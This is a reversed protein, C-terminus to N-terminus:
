FGFKAGLTIIRPMPYSGYDVGLMAGSPIAASSVNPSTASTASYSTASYTSNEPDYNRYKSFLHVNEANVFVRFTKFPTRKLVSQSFAYSLRINKIRLFSADEVWYSSFQEQLGTPKTNPRFHIGDGPESESRWYNAVDAYNNRGAGYSWIGGNYRTVNNAIEGGYSGQLMFSFEFGKYEFTNTIAAIFDPQYNGLITRDNADIKGDNNVDRIIPDGPRSTAYHPMANLEQQNKFVGDFQYGFFNSMPQGVETKVSVVNDTYTMPANGPGLELVKNRNVSFNFDTSWQLNGTLNKTGLSLEIGRNRMKGINTLQTAFGTIDPVPINLLLGNTTSSYFEASLNVRNNFLGIDLGFNAQTTKEWKLNRNEMNQVNLGSALTNNWVYNSGAGGVLLSIAGYNPIQNNGVVGYSARLKLNSLWSLDKMYNEDSMLWAASVSPFYGWRAAPGFRSSGDRRITATLFYRNKYNYNARALYSLLAWEQAFGSGGTAVGGNLTQVQDNPFNGTTVYSYEDRQKQATYGLLVSVNHAGFQKDYTLTNESLWNLMYRSNNDAQAPLANSYGYKQNEYRFSNFRTNYLNGSISTRFKIGDIIRYELYGVALTNFSKTNRKIERTLSYPHWLPISWGNFKYWVSNPDLYGLNGNENYIPYIPASQLGLSIVDSKGTTGQTNDFVGTFALNLGATFSDSIKQKINSRLSLRDYYNNDLVAKQNLYAGSVLYQTKETGGTMSLQVNHSPASRFMVDQWDTGMGFQSPNTTFDEPIQYDGSSGGRVSNPDNVNGGQDAWANNHADIYYQIYQQADMLKIRRAVDQKGFEYSGNISTQGAKGTKTTILIVGNGGRSGYIAASSADKLVDISAIDQPNILSLNFNEMPMGDVVYLPTTGASISTIGRIRISPSAGPAGQSQTINVGPLQGALAQSVDNFSRDKFKDYSISAVAGTVARKSQTGYGIVVVEQLGKSLPVLRITINAQENVNVSQEQYGVFSVELVADKAANITFAGNIDTSVGATSGKVRVSAGPLPQGLEDLVKGVVRDVMNTGKPVVAILRPNITHYTLPSDKFINDLLRYVDIDDTKIDMRIIPNIKRESFVFRYDTNNEIAALIEKLSASKLNLSVVNQSYVGALGQFTFFLILITTLKMVLLCKFLRCGWMGEKPQTSFIM